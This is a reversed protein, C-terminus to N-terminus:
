VSHKFKVASNTCYNAYIVFCLCWVVIMLYVFDFVCRSRSRNMSVSTSELLRTSEASYVLGFISLFVTVPLHHPILLASVARNVLIRVSDGHMIILAHRSYLICVGHIYM